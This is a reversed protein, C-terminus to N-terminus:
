NKNLLWCKSRALFSHLSMAIAMILGPTGDLFGLKLIYNQMFKGLPFFIIEWSKIKRGEEVWCQAVIDTYRNIKDLFSSLNRHPYHLIPNEMQGIKGKIDWVEHVKGGWCGANKKALRLLKINSTEGYKLWKGLFYDKRRLLYGTNNQGITNKQIKTKIESQLERSIVEDTDVFLIWDGKAMKLGYNRQSAFDGNLSRKYINLRDNFLQKKQENIITTKAEDKSSDNIIVIEDCWSLSNLCKKVNEEFSGALIVVSITPKM